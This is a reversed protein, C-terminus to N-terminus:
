AKLLSKGKKGVTKIKKEVTKKKNLLVKKKKLLIKKKMLLAKDIKKKAKRSIKIMKIIMIRIEKASITYRMPVTMTLILFRKM